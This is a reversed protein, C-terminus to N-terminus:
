WCYSDFYGPQHAGQQGKAPNRKSSNPHCGNNRQWQVSCCSRGRHLKRHQGHKCTSYHVFSFPLPSGARRGTEALSLDVPGKWHGLLARCLPPLDRRRLRRITDLRGPGSGGNCSSEVDIWGWKRGPRGLRGEM